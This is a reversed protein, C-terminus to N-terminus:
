CTRLVFMGRQKEYDDLGLARMVNRKTVDFTTPRIARTEVDDGDVERILAAFDPAVEVIAVLDDGYDTREFLASVKAARRKAGEIIRNQITKDKCM